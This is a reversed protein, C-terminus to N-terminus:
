NRFALYSLEDLRDFVTMAWALCQSISMADYRSDSPKDFSLPSAAGVYKFTSRLYCDGQIICCHVFGNFSDFTWPSIIELLAIPIPFCRFLKSLPFVPRM